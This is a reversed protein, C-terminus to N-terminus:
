SVESINKRFEEQLYLPMRGKAMKTRKHVRLEHRMIAKKTGYKSGCIRCNFEKIGAHDAKFHVDVDKQTHFGRSCEVCKYPKNKMHTLLHRNLNSRTIFRLECNDCSFPKDGSHIRMHIKLSELFRGRYPCIQCQFPLDYTHLQLHRFLNDKRYLKGCIECILQSGSQHRIMHKKFLRPTLLRHCIQCQIRVNRHKKSSKHDNYQESSIFKLDCTKRNYNNQSLTESDHDAHHSKDEAQPSHVIANRLIEDSEKASKQFLVAGNLLSQCAECIYKPFADEELIEIDGFTRIAEPLSFPLEVGYIPINGERLCIRCKQLAVDEQSASNKDIKSHFTANEQQLKKVRKKRIMRLMFYASSM